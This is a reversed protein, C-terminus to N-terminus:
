LMELFQARVLNVICIILENKNKLILNMILATEWLWVLSLFNPYPPIFNCVFSFKDINAKPPM